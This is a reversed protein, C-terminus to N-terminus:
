KYKEILPQAREDGLAKAKELSALGDAKKKLQIYALGRILHIDANDPANREAIELSRLANEPQSVRLQLSAMEIFYEPLPNIYAAHAIDNLAQQYQRMNLECQYRIFYFDDSARGLMLSDYQYYDVIAKRYQGDQDYARGRALIYPASINTLPQPCAAVASDLLAIIEANPAKLNAKCQAAEYFVESNRLSSSALATFLHLAEDYRQQSFIIQAQLHQYSPDAKLNYAENAESLAKDLTWETYLSDQSYLVKNYIIRAYDAHAVDKDDVNSIAEQMTADAEAYQQHAALLQAKLTYGDTATPFLRMFDDVYKAYNKTLGGANALVLLNLAEKQEKPLDIRIGTRQYINESIALGNEIVFSNAYRGDTAQGDRTTSAQQSLGVVEGQANVIPCGLKNDEVIENFQYFAYQGMFDEAKKVTMDAVPAKKLAYSVQWAKEGPTLHQTALVAPTTNGKVRFHCVDYIENAGMIVDVEHMKGQADIVVASDAGIFPSFLSIAEGDKSTFVGYTTALLEGGAKFTTLSFVAKGSKQVASPQAKMGTQLLLFFAVLIFSKISSQYNFNISQMKKKM